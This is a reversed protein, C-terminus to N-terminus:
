NSVHDMLAIIDKSQIREVGRGTASDYLPSDAGHSYGSLNRKHSPTFPDDAGTPSDFIGMGDTDMGGLGKPGSKPTGPSPSVPHAGSAYGEDKAGSPTDPVQEDAYPQDYYSDPAYDGEPYHDPDYSLEEDLGFGRTAPSDDHLGSQGEKSPSGEDYPWYGQDEEPLGPGQIISPNTNIESETEAADGAEPIPSSSQADDGADFSRSRGLEPQDDVSQTVSQPPSTAGMRKLFSTADPSGADQRQKLPSGQRSGYGQPSPEQTQQATKPQPSRSGQPGALNPQSRKEGLQTSRPGLISPELLSAVASEVPVPHVFQPNAGSGDSVRQGQHVKDMYDVESDDTYNTMHKHDLSSTDAMSDRRGHFDSKDDWEDTRSSDGYGFGRDSEQQDNQAGSKQGNLSLGSPKASRAFNTSPASSLSGISLRPELEKEGRSYGLRDEQGSQRPSQKQEKLDSQESAVSQIPSLVRRRTPDSHEDLLNAVAAAAIDGAAAADGDGSDIDDDFDYDEVLPSFSQKRGGRDSASHVSLNHNSQNGHRLGLEYRTDLPTRNPTHSLPSHAQVPADGRSVGQVRTRLPSTTSEPEATRQSTLSDRTLESDLVSRLPMPPVNHKQFILETDNVGGGEKQSHSDSQPQSENKDLSSKSNHNRLAAATLATGVRGAREAERLGKSKSRRVKDQETLDPRSGWKVQASDAESASSLDSSDKGGKSEETAPTPHGKLLTTGEDKSNKNLVVKPKIIDPASAHKSLRRGLEDRSPGGTSSHSSANLDREFKSTNSIVKQDKKLEKLEPLILRRIADEVTELLRPNNISSKNSVGSRNASTASASLLSSEPTPMDDDVHKRARRRAQRSDPGLLHQNVDTEVSKELEKREQPDNTLKEAVKHAIRETSLSRSRKRAPTKLLNNNDPEPEPDREASQSRRRNTTSSPAELLSDAPMSSIDSTAPIYRSDRDLDLDSNNGQERNLFEIEFPPNHRSQRPNEESEVSQEDPEDEEEQKRLKHPAGLSIRRAFVPKQNGSSESVQIQHDRQDKLKKSSPTVRVRVSPRSVLSGSGKGGEFYEILLSTQSNQPGRSLKSDDGRDRNRRRTPIVVPNGDDPVSYSTKDTRRSIDTAVDTTGSASGGTTSDTPAPLNPKRSEVAM